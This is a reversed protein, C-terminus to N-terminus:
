LIKVNFSLRLLADFYGSQDSLVRMLTLNPVGPIADPSTRM